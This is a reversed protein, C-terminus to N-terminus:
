SFCFMIMIQFFGFWIYGLTTSLNVDCISNWNGLLESKICRTECSRPAYGVYASYKLQEGAVFDTVRSVM